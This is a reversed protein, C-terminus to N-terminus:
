WSTKFNGNIAEEYSQPEEEINDIEKEQITSLLNKQRVARVPNRRPTHIEVPVTIKEPHVKEDKEPIEDEDSEYKYDYSMDTSDEDDSPNYKESENGDLFRVDRSVILKGTKICILRYGKQTPAYGSFRLTEGRPQLKNTNQGKKLVVAAAGFRQMHGMNPKRGHMLEFPTVEVASSESRNRVYAATCVAEAWSADPMNGDILMCRVMDLLTRNFREAVGNQAPSHPVSTEHKIGNEKLDNRFRDNIYERGNDSRLIKIKMGTQTEMQSRYDRWSDYAESKAKLCYVKVYRSYDDIFTIFYKAGGYSIKPMQCLDSHVRGLLEGARNEATKPYPEETIKARACIECKIQENGVINMGSVLDKRSMKKISTTNLHGLKRHWKMMDGSQKTGNINFACNENQEPSRNAQGSNKVNFIFLGNAYRGTALLMENRVVTAGWKDFTVVCGNESAKIVSFFNTKLEPVFLTDMLELNCYKTKILVTGKYRCQIETGNALKVTEHFQKMNLFMERSNCLHSTAGSDMVWERRNETIALANVFLAQNRMSQNNPNPPTTKTGRRRCDRQIHGMMGCNFCKIQKNNKRDSREKGRIMLARNENPASEQKILRHYEEDIKSKIEDLSPLQDRTMIAVKFQEFTSPLAELLVITYLEEDVQVKIEHLKRIVNSFENLMGPIEDTNVSKMNILRSYLSVKAAPSSRIYKNHLAEWAEKATICNRIEEKTHNDCALSILSLAQEERDKNAADPDNVNKWLNKYMLANKVRFSWEDYNCSGKLKPLDLLGSGSDSAM